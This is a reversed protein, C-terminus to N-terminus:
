KRLFLFDVVKKLIGIARSLFDQKEKPQNLIALNKENVADATTGSDKNSNANSNANANVNNRVITNGSIKSNGSNKTSESSPLNSVELSNLSIEEEYL